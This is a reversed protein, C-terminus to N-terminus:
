AVIKLELARKTEDGTLNQYSSIRAFDRERTTGDKPVALCGMITKLDGLPDFPFPM